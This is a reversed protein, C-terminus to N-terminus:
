SRGILRQFESEQADIAEIISEHFAERSYAEEVTLLVADISVGLVVGLVFGIGGGVLTGAGPVVSGVMAGLSAGGAGGVVKSASAKVMAGAALKFSGKASLKATISTVLTAGIVGAGSVGLRQELNMFVAEDPPEMLSDLSLRRLVVVDDQGNELLRNEALLRSVAAEYRKVSQQDVRLASQVVRELERAAEPDLLHREVDHQIREEIRGSALSAIRLYEGPLSYYHDLYVDVNRRMQDFFLASQQYLRERVDTREAAMQLTLDGVASATGPRYAEGDIMEALQVSRTEAQVLVSQWSSVHLRLNQETFVLLPLLIFALLTILLTTFFAVRPSVQAPEEQIEIPTFVRRFEAPPVLFASLLLGFNYLLAFLFLIALATVLGSERLCDSPARRYADLHAMLRDSFQLLHSREPDLPQQVIETIRVSLECGVQEPTGIGSLLFVLPTLLLAFLWRTVTMAMANASWATMERQTVAVVGRHLLLLGVVSALMLVREATQLHSLWFVTLFSFVCAWVSWLVTSIIRSTAIRRLFGGPRFRASRHILRVTDTYLAALLLPIVLLPLLLMLQWLSGSRVVLDSGLLLVVSWIVAPLLYGLIKHM